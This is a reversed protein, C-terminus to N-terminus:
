REKAIILSFNFTIVKNLTGHPNVHKVNCAISLILTNCLNMNSILNMHQLFLVQQSHAKCIVTPSKGKFASITFM